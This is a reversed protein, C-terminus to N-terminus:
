SENTFENHKIILYLSSLIISSLMFYFGLQLDVEYFYSIKGGFVLFSLLFIDLLAFKHIPLTSLFSSIFVRQMIKFIPFILGFTIIVISLIYEKSYFLNYSLSILSFESSFFWFEDITALPLSVGLLLFIFEFLTLLTVFRSRIKKNIIM